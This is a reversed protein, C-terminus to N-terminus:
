ERAENNTMLSQRLQFLQDKSIGPLEQQQHQENDLLQEIKKIKEITRQKSEDRSEDLSVREAPQDTDCIFHQQKTPATQLMETDSAGLVNSETNQEEIPLGGEASKNRQITPMLDVQQQLPVHEPQEAEM